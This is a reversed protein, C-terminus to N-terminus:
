GESNVIAIGGGVLLMGAFLWISIAEGLILYSFLVGFFPAAFHFVGLRSAQYRRLLNTWFVFAFGAIVIGQYLIATVVEVSFHFPVDSEFVLSLLIFVPLSFVSQWLLVKEPHMDKILRKMYVLRLGLLLGSALVLLDGALYQIDGLAFNESFITFVGFFSVLIGITKIRSLRDGPIMLHAFLAIFFPHTSIFVTSRAALTYQTGVNLLYIQVVFQLALQFLVRYEGPKIRLPIRFVLGWVLIFLTGLAFRFGALALPPVGDLAVKVSVNMGGWLVAALFALSGAQFTLSENSAKVTTSRLQRHVPGPLRGTSFSM